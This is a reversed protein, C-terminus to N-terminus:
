GKRIAHSNHSIDLRTHPAKLSEAVFAIFTYDGLLDAAMVQHSLVGYKDPFNYKGEHFDVLANVTDCYIYNVNPIVRSTAPEQLALAKIEHLTAASFLGYYDGKKGPM